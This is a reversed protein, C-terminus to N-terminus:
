GELGGGGWLGPRAQARDLRGQRRAGGGRRESPEAVCIEGWVALLDCDGYTKNANWSLLCPACGPRGAKETCLTKV